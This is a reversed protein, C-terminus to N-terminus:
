IVRIWLSVVDGNELLVLIAGPAFEIAKGFADSKGICLWREMENFYADWNTENIRTSVGTDPLCGSKVYLDCKKTEPPVNSTSKWTTHPCFGWVGLLLGDSSLSLNLDNILLPSYSDYRPTFDFSYEAVDYRIEIEKSSWKDGVNFEVAM